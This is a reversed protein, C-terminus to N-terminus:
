ATRPEAHIAARPRQRVIPFRPSDATMAVALPMSSAVEQPRMEARTSRWMSLWRRFMDPTLEAAHRLHLQVPYGGRSGTGRLVSSWYRTLHEPRNSWDSLEASFVPALTADGRVRDYFREVLPMLEKESLAPIETETM